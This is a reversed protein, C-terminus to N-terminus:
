GCIGDRSHSSTRNHQPVSIGSPLTHPLRFQGVVRSLASHKLMHRGSHTWSFQKSMMFRPPDDM